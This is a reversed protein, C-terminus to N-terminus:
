MFSFDEFHIQSRPVGSAVLQRELNQMMVPPGCIYIDSRPLEASAGGIDSADIHGLSRKRIPVVRLKPNADAVAFLEDILHAHEPGETCYYLDVGIRSLDATKAMGLFPAIGVGGAIWIQRPNDAGRHWFWGYPGEVRARCGPQLEQLRTTYDGLAKILFRLNREAPASAISYPHPERTVNGGDVTLFAFQGARYRLRRGRPALVVEAVSPDLRNVAEVRYRRRPLARGVVSRYVYGAGGLCAVVILYVRVVPAVGLAGPVVIAHVAGVGFMAGLTRQVWVFTERSIPARFTIAIGASMGGLAIAGLVVKWGFGEPAGWGVFVSAMLSGHIALLALTLLALHEHFKYVRDLGGLFREVPKIRAVLLLNQTFTTFGALAFLIAIKRLALPAPGFPPRATTRWWLVVPVAVWLASAARPRWRLGSTVGM